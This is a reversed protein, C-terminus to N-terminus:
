WYLLLAEKYKDKVEWIYKSFATDHTKETTSCHVTTITNSKSTENLKEQTYKTHILTPQPLVNAYLIVQKATIIYHSVTRIELIINTNKEQKKIKKNHTKNISLLNKSWCYTVNVTNTNVIQHLKNQSHSWKQKRKEKKKKKNFILKTKCYKKTKKEHDNKSANLIEKDSSNKILQKNVSTITLKFIRCQVNVCGRVGRGFPDLM